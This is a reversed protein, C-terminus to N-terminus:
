ASASKVPTRMWYYNQNNKLDQEFKERVFPNMETEAMNFHNSKKLVTMFNERIEQKQGNIIDWVAKLRIQPVDIRCYDIEQEYFTETLNMLCAYFGQDNTFPDIYDIKEDFDQCLSNM